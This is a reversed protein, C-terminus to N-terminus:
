LESRTNLKEYFRWYMRRMYLLIEAVLAVGILQLFVKLKM